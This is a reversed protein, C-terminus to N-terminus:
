KACRPSLDPGFDGVHWSCARSKLNQSQRLGLAVASPASAPPVNPRRARLATQDARHATPDGELAQNPPCRREDHAPGHLLSLVMPVLRTSRRSSDLRQGALGVIAPKRRRRFLQTSPRLRVALAERPAFWSAPFENRCDTMYKGGFVGLALMAKPTLEPRFEPDFNRGTPATLAYTYGRQMKDNVTIISVRKKM